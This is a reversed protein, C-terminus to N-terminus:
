LDQGRVGCRRVTATLGALLGPPSHDSSVLSIQARKQAQFATRPRAGDGGYVAPTGAENKEVRQLPAKRGCSSLSPISHFRTASDSASRIKNESPETSIETRGTGPYTRPQVVVSCVWSGGNWSKYRRSKRRRSNYVRSFSPAGYM